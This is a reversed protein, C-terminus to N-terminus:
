NFPNDVEGTQVPPLVAPLDRAELSAVIAGLLCHLARAQALGAQDASLDVDGSLTVRDLRNEVMLNGIHLVEAENAFPAFPSLKKKSAM